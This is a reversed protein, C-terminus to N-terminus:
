DLLWGDASIAPKRKKKVLRQAVASDMWLDYLTIEKAEYKAELAAKCGHCARCLSQWRTTDFIAQRGALRIPVVHDVLTAQQGCGRCSPNRKLWERSREQWQSSYGRTQANARAV